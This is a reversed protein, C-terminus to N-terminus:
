SIEVLRNIDFPERLGVLSFYRCACACIWNSSLRICSQETKGAVVIAIRDGITIGDAPSVSKYYAMNIKDYRVLPLDLIVGSKEEQKLALINSIAETVMIDTNNQSKVEAREIPFSTVGDWGRMYMGLHLLSMLSNVAKYRTEQNLYTTKLTIEKVGLGNVFVGVEEIVKALQLSEETRVRNSILLLKAISEKSFMTTDKTVLPNRFCMFKSFIQHLETYTFINKPSGRQGYSVCEQDKLENVDEMVICTSTNSANPCKGQYFTNCVSSTQILTYPHTTFMDAETYGERFAHNVLQNHSYMSIPLKHNFWKSLDISEIHDNKILRRLRPSFPTYEISDNTSSEELLKLERQPNGAMSIDTNFDVCAIAIASLKCIDLASDRNNIASIDKGNRLDEGLKSLKAYNFNDLVVPNNEYLQDDFPLISLKPDSLLGIQNYETVSEINLLDQIFNAINVLCGKNHVKNIITTLVSKINDIGMDYISLMLVMDELSTLYNTKINRHRCLAYLCSSNLSHPNDPTQLGISYNSVTLGATFEKCEFRTIFNYSEILKDEAWKCNPNIFRAINKLEKNTYPYSVCCVKSSNIVGVMREHYTAIDTYRCDFHISHANAIEELVCLPTCRDLEGTVLLISLPKSNAYHNVNEM